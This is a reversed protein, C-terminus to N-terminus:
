INKEDISQQVARLYDGIPHIQSGLEKKSVLSSVFLVSNHTQTQMQWQEVAQITAV